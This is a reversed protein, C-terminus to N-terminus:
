IKSMEIELALIKRCANLKLQNEGLFALMKAVHVVNEKKKLDADDSVYYDRDPLGVGGPGVSWCTEIVTRLMQVMLEFVLEAQGDRNVLSTFRETKMLKKKLYPKIPAIGM